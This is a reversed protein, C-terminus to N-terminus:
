LSLNSSICRLLVVVTASEPGLWPPSSFSSLFLVVDYDHFSVRHNSTMEIVAFSLNFCSGVEMEYLFLFM